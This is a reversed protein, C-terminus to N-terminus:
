VLIRYQTFNTWKLTQWNSTDNWANRAHGKMDYSWAVTQALPKQWRPLKETAGASIGSEFMKEYEDVISENSKCDRQTCGSFVHDLFAAPEELDVLKM